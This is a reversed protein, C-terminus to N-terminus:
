SGKNASSEGRQGLYWGSNFKSDQQYKIGMMRYFESRHFNMARFSTESETDVEYARSLAWAKVANKYKGDVPLQKLWWTGDLEPPSIVANVIVTASVGTPVPPSVFFQAPVRPDYAYASVRYVVNGDEDVLQNCAPKTFARVLGLDDRTISLPDDKVDNNLSTVTSVGSPITQKSGPALTVKIATSFADPRYLAVQTLGDAIYEIVMDRTWRTFEYGRQQDKLQRSVDTAISRLTPM